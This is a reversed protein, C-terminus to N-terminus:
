GMLGVGCSSPCRCDSAPPARAHPGRSPPHGAATVTTGDVRSDKVAQCRSERRNLARALPPPGGRSAVMGLLLPPTCVSPTAPPAPPLRLPRRPSTSAAVPWGGLGLRRVQSLEEVALAGRRWLLPARGSPPHPVHSLLHKHSELHM